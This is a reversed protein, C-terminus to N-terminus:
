GILDEMSAPVLAGNIVRYVDFPAGEHYECEVLWRHDVHMSSLRLWKILMQAKRHWGIPKVQVVLGTREHILDIGEGADEIPTACRWGRTPGGLALAVRRERLSGELTRVIVLNLFWEGVASETYTANPHNPHNVCYLTLDAITQALHAASRGFERPNPHQGTKCLADFSEGSKLYKAVFERLAPDGWRRYLDVVAGVSTQSNAGSVEHLCRSNDSPRWDNIWIEPMRPKVGALLAELLNLVESETM